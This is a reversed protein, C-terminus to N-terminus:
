HPLIIRGSDKPVMLSLGAQHLEIPRYGHGIGAVGLGAMVAPFPAIKVMGNPTERCVVADDLGKQASAFEEASKKAESEEQYAEVPVWLKHGGLSFVRFVEFAKPNQM